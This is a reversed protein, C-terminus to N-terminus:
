FHRQLENAYTRGLSDSHEQIWESLLTSGTSPQDSDAMGDHMAQARVLVHAINNKNFGFIAKLRRLNTSM